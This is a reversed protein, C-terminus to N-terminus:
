DPQKFESDNEPYSFTNPVFWRAKYIKYGSGYFVRNGTIDIVEDSWYSNNPELLLTGFGKPGSSVSKINARSFLTKTFSKSAVDFKYIGDSTTLWLANEGHVPYLDHADDGPLPITEARQTLQPDNGVFNYDYCYLVNKATAWMCNNKKDWVANHGFQLPYKAHEATQASNLTDVRYVRLADGNITGDSSSAVVLNGDPLIEASHPQGKPYAYFMVKKDSIRIIAVAGNTATMLIYNNNYIPKAEDPLNFWSRHSSPIESTAAKWEWMIGQSLSDVIIVRQESQEVMLIPRTSEVLPPTPYDPRGDDINEWNDLDIVIKDNDDDCSIVVCCISILLALIRINFRKM